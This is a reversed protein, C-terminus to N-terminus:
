ITNRRIQHIALEPEDVTDPRRGALASALRAIPTNGPRIQFWKWRRARGEETEERLLPLLGARVLSSKGSGSSGVVATFRSRDLLRYLAFVQDQRGFFYEHDGFGYPRLGPFPRDPGLSSAPSDNNRM